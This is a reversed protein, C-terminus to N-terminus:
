QNSYRSTIFISRFPSVEELEDSYTIYVDELAVKTLYLQIRLILLFHELRRWGIVPWVHLWSNSWLSPPFLRSAGFKIGGLPGNGREQGLTTDEM